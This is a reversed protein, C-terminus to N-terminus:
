DEVIKFLLMIIPFNLINASKIDMQKNEHLLEDSSEPLVSPLTSVQEGFLM